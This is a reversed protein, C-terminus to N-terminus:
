QYIVNERVVKREDAKFKNLMADCQEPTPDSFLFRMWKRNMVEEVAIKPVDIKIM